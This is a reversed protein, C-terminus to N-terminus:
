DHSGGGFYQTGRRHGRVDKNNVSPQSVTKAVAGKDLANKIQQYTPTKTLKITETCAQELKSANFKDKLNLLGFCSRYAQQEIVARDLISEIVLKTNPGIQEGWRIFRDRNWDTYFLKDPPMHETVTSYNDRGLIRKHSAIRQNKLFIEITNITARVDVTEGLYEFPVSYFRKNFAIHCNPQVKAHSWQAFEFRDGPLPLMYEKEENLYNTWRSENKGTLPAENIKELAVAVVQQLDIFSLIQKNRLKAIIRRSGILVGNEGSAKDRPKKVRAPLIVCGYYNSMELYAKNLDPSYYNPKTVGSKLNDPTITKPVGQFYEFAHVHGSIWHPLQENRFPEAYILQSCPLVAVFLSAESSKGIESDYYGIKTGAWDVELSLAPKHELRITAKYIKAFKHYYTRFQTEMYFRDGNAQCEQVYEEWLLKLTVHPKALESHVFDYDPMKFIKGAKPAQSTPLSNTFIAEDIQALDECTMWGQQKAHNLLLVITNRSVKHIAAVQRQSLGSYIAKVIQINDSMIFGGRTSNYHLNQMIVYM